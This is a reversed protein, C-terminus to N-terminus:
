MKDANRVVSEEIAKGLTADAKVHRSLRCGQAIRSTVYKQVDVPHQSIELVAANELIGAINDFDRSTVMLCLNSFKHLQDILAERAQEITCEDLADIFVYVKKFRDIEQSLEEAVEKLKPRTGKDIHNKYLRRVSDSVDTRDDILHRWVSALLNEPGQTDQEKYNCYVYAVGIDNKPRQTQLEVTHKM